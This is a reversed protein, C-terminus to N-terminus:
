KFGASLYGVKYSDTNPWEGSMGMVFCIDDKDYKPLLQIDPIYLYEGAKITFSFCKAENKEEDWGYSKNKLKNYSSGSRYHMNGQNFRAGDMFYTGPELKSKKRGSSAADFYTLKLSKKGITGDDEIKRWTTEANPAFYIDVIGYGSALVEEMDADKVKLPHPTVLSTLDGGVTVLNNAIGCGIIFSCIFCIVVIKKM